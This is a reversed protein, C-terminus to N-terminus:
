EHREEPGHHVHGHALEEESADRVDRVTVAFTLTAGALPHNGDVTVDDGEIGTVTVVHTGNETAANFQMGPKLEGVAKFSDRSVVQVLEEDREGYAQEPPLSVNLEAGASKGELATELGPITSGIGHIYCYPDRGESSEILSGTQDQLTYDITVVKHRTIQM